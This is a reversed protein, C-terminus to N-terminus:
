NRKKKWEGCFYDHTLSNVKEALDISIGDKEKERERKGGKHLLKCILDM